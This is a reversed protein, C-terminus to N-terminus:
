TSYVDGSDGMTQDHSYFSKSNLTRQVAEDSEATSDITPPGGDNSSDSNSIRSNAASTFSRAIERVKVEDEEHWSSSQQNSQQSRIKNKGDVGRNMIEEITEKPRHNSSSTKPRVHQSDTAFSQEEVPALAVRNEQRSSVKQRRNKRSKSSSSRPRTPASSPGDPITPSSYVDDSKYGDPEKRSHNSMMSMGISSMDDLDEPEFSIDVGGSDDDSELGDETAAYPQFSPSIADSHMPPPPLPPYSTDMFPRNLSTDIINLSADITEISPTSPSSISSYIPPPDPLSFTSHTDQSATGDGQKPDNSAQSSLRSSSTCSKDDSRKSGTGKKKSSVHERKNPGANSNTAVNGTELDHFEKRQPKVARPRRAM